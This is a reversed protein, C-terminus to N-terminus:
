DTRIIMTIKSNKPGMVRINLSENLLFKDYMDIDFHIRKNGEFIARPAYYYVGLHEPNHYILYGYISEITFSIKNDSDVIISNLKGIIEPTEFNEIGDNLDFNIKYEM